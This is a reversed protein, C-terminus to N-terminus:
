LHTVNSIYKTEVAICANLAQKFRSASDAVSSVQSGHSERSPILLGPKVTHASYIETAYCFTTKLPTLYTLLPQIHPATIANTALFVSQLSSGYKQLISVTTHMNNQLVYKSSIDVGVHEGYKLCMSSYDKLLKNTSSETSLDALLIEIPLIISSLKRGQLTSQISSLQEEVHKMDLMPNMQDDKADMVPNIEDVNTGMVPNMQIENTDMIPNIRHAIFMGDLPSDGTAHMDVLLEYISDLEVIDRTIVTRCGKLLSAELAQKEREIPKYKSIEYGYVSGTSSLTNSRSSSLRHLLQRSLVKGRRLM